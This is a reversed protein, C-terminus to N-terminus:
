FKEIVSITKEIKKLKIVNDEVIFDDETMETFIFNKSKYKVEIKPTIYIYTKNVAFYFIFVLLL